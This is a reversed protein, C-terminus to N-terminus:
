KSNLRIYYTHKGKGMRQIFRNDILSNLLRVAKSRSVSLMEIINSIEIKEQFYFLRMIDMCEQGLVVLEKQRLLPRPLICKVFGVGEFLIPRFLQREQYSQYLIILGTGMKEILGMERFIRAIVPNRLFTLGLVLPDKRIPGPFNGPSFIELRDDYIAVKTPSPMGYHRHVLANLLVERIAVEPIELWEKRIGDPQIEYERNLRTTIFHFCAKYQEFLNGTFDKTALVDRGKIGAFHTGIIFAETLLQQPEKGFLLVGAMTPFTQQHEEMLLNYHFLIEDLNLIKDRQIRHSLFEKFKDRDIVEIDAKYIPQEDPYIGRAQQKLEEIMEPSALITETGFRIYTGQDIGKSKVFYPKKSGKSVDIVLLLKDHM